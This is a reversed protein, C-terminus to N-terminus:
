KDSNTMNFTKKVYKSIYIKTLSQEVHPIDIQANIFELRTDIKPQNLSGRVTATVKIDGQLGEIDPVFPQLSLLPLTGTLNLLSKGTISAEGELKFNGKGLLFLNTPPIKLNGQNYNLHFHSSTLLPLKNKKLDLKSLTIAVKSNLIRNLNGSFKINGKVNGSYDKYGAMKLYPTLELSKFDATGKTFRTYLNTKTDWHLLGSGKIHAISDAINLELNLTPLRVKELVM